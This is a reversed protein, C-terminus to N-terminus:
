TCRRMRKMGFTTMATTGPQAAPPPPTPIVLGGGSGGGCAALATGLSVALATRVLRAAGPRGGCTNSQMRVGELTRSAFDRIVGAGM